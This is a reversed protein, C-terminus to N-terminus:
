PKTPPPIPVPPTASRKKLVNFFMLRKQYRPYPADTEIRLAGLMPEGTSTPTLTIEYERGKNIEKAEAKMNERSSVVATVHIASEDLVTFKVKKGTPEEGIAWTVQDPTIEYVKPITVTLTLKIEKQDSDDTTIVVNKAVEGEFSGLLFATDITATDGPKFEMRGDKTKAKLCSCYSKIDLIKIPKDGTVTFSFEGAVETDKHSATLAQSPKAFEIGAAARSVSLLLGVLFASFYRDNM